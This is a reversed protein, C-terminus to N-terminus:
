LNALHQRDAVTDGADVAEIVDLGAFHDFERASNAAHGQVEFGVVDAHNNEAVVARNLFAVGDLPGAGDNFNRDTLSKQAANNVTKAIWDIALARNLRVLLHADIDLRRANQRALRHM